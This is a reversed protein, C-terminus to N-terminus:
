LIKSANITHYNGNKLTNRIFSFKWQFLFFGEIRLVFPFLSFIFNFRTLSEVKTMYKFEIKSTFMLYYLRYWSLSNKYCIINILIKKCYPVFIQSSFGCLGLKLVILCCFWLNCFFCWCEHFTVCYSVMVLPM